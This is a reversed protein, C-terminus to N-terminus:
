KKVFHKRIFERGAGSKLYKELAFATLRNEVAVYAVIKWPRFKATSHSEGRNHENFRNRLDKTAGIYQKLPVRISQLIYVYYM